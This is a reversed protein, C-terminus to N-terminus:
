AAPTLARAEAAQVREVNTLYYVAAEIEAATLDAHKRSKRVADTLGVQFIISGHRPGYGYECDCRQGDWRDYSKTGFAVRWLDGYHERIPAGTAIQKVADAIVSARETGGKAYVGRVFVVTKALDVKAMDIGDASMELVRRRDAISRMLEADRKAASERHQALEANLAHLERVATTLSAETM